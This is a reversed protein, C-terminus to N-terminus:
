CRSLASRARSGVGLAAVDVCCGRGYHFALGLRTMWGSGGLAFLWAWPDTTALLGTSLRSPAPVLGHRIEPVQAM